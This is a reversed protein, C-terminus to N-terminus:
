KLLLYLPAMVATGSSDADLESRMDMLAKASALITNTGTEPIYPIHSVGFTYNAPIFMIKNSAMWGKPLRTKNYDYIAQAAQKVGDVYRTGIHDNPQPPMLFFIIKDNNHAWEFFPAVHKKINYANNTPIYEICIGDLVDTLSQVHAGDDKWTRANM